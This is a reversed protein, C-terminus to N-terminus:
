ADGGFSDILLAAALMGSSEIGPEASFFAACLFLCFPPFPPLPPSVDDPKDSSSAAM